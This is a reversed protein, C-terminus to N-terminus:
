FLTVFIETNQIISFYYNDSVNHGVLRHLVPQEMIESGGPLWIM